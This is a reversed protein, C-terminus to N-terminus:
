KDNENLLAQFIEIDTAYTLKLNKESGRSFYVPWGLEAMLTCSTVTNKINRNNAIKHAMLIDSLKFGQPAQVRRLLERPIFQHSTKGDSTIMMADYCDIATVANGYKKVGRICNNIIEDSVMPRVADHILVVSDMPYLNGLLTLGNFISEQGTKGGAAIHRLKTIGYKEASKQLWKEWGGLCAVCIADINKNKQFVSLTHIIVPRGSINMFQKPVRGNMRVGSGGAIILVLNM